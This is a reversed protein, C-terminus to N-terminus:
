TGETSSASYATANSSRYGLYASDNTRYTRAVAREARTSGRVPGYWVYDEHGQGIGAARVDHTQGLSMALLRVYLPKGHLELYKIADQSSGKDAVDEFYQVSWLQVPMITYNPAQRRLDYVWHAYASSLPHRPLIAMYVWRWTEGDCEFSEPFCDHNKWPKWKFRSKAVEMDDVTYNACAFEDLHFGLYAEGFPPTRALSEVHRLSRRAASDHGDVALDNLDLRLQRSVM